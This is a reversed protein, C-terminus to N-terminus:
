TTKKRMRKTNIKTTFQITCIKQRLTHRYYCIFECLWDLIKKLIIQFQDRIRQLCLVCYVYWVWGGVM